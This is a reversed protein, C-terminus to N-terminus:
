FKPDSSIQVHSQASKQALIIVPSNTDTSCNLLYNFKMCIKTFYNQKDSVTFLATNFSELRFM